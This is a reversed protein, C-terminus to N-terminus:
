ENRRMGVSPGQLDVGIMLGGPLGGPLALGARGPVGAPSGPGAAVGFRHMDHGGPVSNLLPPPPVGGPVGFALHAPLNSLFENCVTIYRVTNDLVVDKATNKPLGLMQRLVHLSRVVRDRRAAEKDKHNAKEGGSEDPGDYMPMVQMVEEFSRKMGAGVVSNIVLQSTAGGGTHCNPMASHVHPDLHPIQREQGGLQRGEPSHAPLTAPQAPISQVPTAVIHPTHNLTIESTNGVGTYPHVDSEVYTKGLSGFHDRYSIVVAQSGGGGGAGGAGSGGGDADPYAPHQVIIGIPQAMAGQWQTSPPPGLLPAGPPSSFLNADTSISDSQDVPAPPPATPNFRAQGTPAPYLSPPNPQNGHLAPNRAFAPESM